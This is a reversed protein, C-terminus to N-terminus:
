DAGGSGGLPLAGVKVLAVGLGSSGSGGGAGFLEGHGSVKPVTDEYGSAQRGTSRSPVFWPSNQFPM